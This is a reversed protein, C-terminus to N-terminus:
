RATPAITVRVLQDADPWAWILDDESSGRVLGNGENAGTNDGAQRPEQDRGIAGAQNAETGAEWAGLAASIADELLAATLPEGEDDLLSIGTGGLSVFTDNSPILMAAISLRSATADPTITFTFSANAGLPGDDVAAEVVGAEGGLDDLLATPDADEALMELSPSAPMDADFLSVSDDHVAWLVPSFDAPFATAGSINEITVDYEGPAAGDVVTVELLGGAGAGELDNVAESYPRITADADTTGSGALSQESQTNSGAGPVENAETGADWVILNRRFDEEIQANTRASGDDDLLAIGGPVPAVFADNSAAISSVFSLMRNDQDPTVTIVFSDGPATPDAILEATGVGAVAALTAQLATGDGDEVLDELGAVDAADGGATFVSVTDEHLAWVTQSLNSAVTDGINTFTITLVEPTKPDTTVDVSIVRAAQPLARTSSNFATVAGTEPMGDGASAQTGLQDFGQGPAQTYETGVEWVRLVDSIDRMNMPSGNNAFLAVGLSGTGIFHDNGAGLGALLSLRDGPEATFIFSSEEGPALVGKTTGSQVHGRATIVSEALVSVDGDSALEALGDGRDPFDPTFVPETGLEQEIWLVSGIDTALVSTESINTITVEFEAPEAPPGDDSSSEEPPSTSGESESSSGDVVGSSSSDATTITTSLTSDTGTESSSGTDNDTTAPADDGGCATIALLSLTALSVHKFNM